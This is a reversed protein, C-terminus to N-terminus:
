LGHRADSRAQTVGFLIRSVDVHRLEECKAAVDACLRRVHGCFDFPRDSPGSLLWPPAELGVKRGGDAPRRVLRLPLPRDPHQWRYVPPLAPPAFRQTAHAVSTTEM